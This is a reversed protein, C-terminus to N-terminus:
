QHKSQHRAVADELIEVILHTFSKGDFRLIAGISTYDEDESLGCQANVELVYFKGTNKDMRIDLRGYGMGGVSRFAKISIEKLIEILEEDAKKYNYLFGEAEIPKETDYTEWLRDFSLFQEKEPLSKHFVREIPTYCHLSKPKTSSGVVLTTFERGNVFEEVFIGGTDLKWGRYGSRMDNVIAEFEDQTSVVNKVTLGMSGASVAPKVILTKGIENFIAKYDEEGSEIVKWKATPVKRSDFAQKMPIKSTTIEYFFDDSGTYILNHKELEAIVSLGPVANSEDGDCLNIVITKKTTPYNKIRLVSKEIDKITVNQWKWECGVEGFVKTYEAISQTYDYYYKLNPDETELYPALIWVLYQDKNELFGTKKRRGSRQVPAVAVNLDAKVKNM